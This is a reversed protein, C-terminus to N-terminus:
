GAGRAVLWGVAAGLLTGALNVADNDVWRIRGEASAGLLSDLGMGATGAALAGGVAGGLSASGVLLGHVLGLLAAGALGALTGAASVGGSRGPEVPEWTTVLRTPGAARRGLESAWTDATAAALAGALAAGAGPLWGWAGLLAAAAAVGGNALVQRTGRRSGGAAEDVPVGESAGEEFLNSSPGPPPAPTPAQRRRGPPGDTRRGRTLRTLVSATVFFFLLLGVGVPGSGWWLALGLVAAAVVAGPALWRRRWAVALTAAAAALAAADSPSM